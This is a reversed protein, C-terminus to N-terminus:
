RSWMSLDRDLFGALRRNPESFEAILRARTEPLLPSPQYDQATRRGLPSRVFRERLSDRVEPPLSRALSGVVPLRRLAASFRQRAYDTGAAAEATNAFVESDTSLDLPELGLFRQVAELTVAPASRLDDLLVCRLSEPPFRTLFREIQVMYMSTDVFMADQELAEEFPMRPVNLRMRHKYHSYTRDVPHRLMYLLRVRPAAEYIRAPVDGFHPWRSYTTSAEGCIKDAPAATFLSKYWELGRSYIEQKAFFEPEKPELMHVRPHRQLYRWLTTTGAKCAGIILFDPVRAPGVPEAPIHFGAFRNPTLDKM